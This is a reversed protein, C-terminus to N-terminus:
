EISEKYSRYEPSQPYLNKLILAYAAAKGANGTERALRIGLWLSKPYHSTRKAEVLSSFQEYWTSAGRLDGKLYLLESLEVLAQVRRPNLKLSRAFAHEAADNRDILRYCRGLNEFAQARKNYFPDETARAIETCAEPYRQQAFLFAGFNNHYIAAQPEASIAKRFYEEALEPESETQFVLALGNFAPAYSSDITLARQLSNKASVTDGAQLYQLGLRTYADLAAEPSAIEDRTANTTCGTIALLSVLLLAGIRKM